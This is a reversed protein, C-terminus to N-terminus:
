RALGNSRRENVHRVACLCRAAVTSARWAVISCARAGVHRRLRAVRIRLLKKKARDIRRAAQTSLRVNRRTSATNCIM